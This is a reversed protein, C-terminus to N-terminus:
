EEIWDYKDDYEYKKKLFLTRFIKKFYAYNPEETFGLNKV